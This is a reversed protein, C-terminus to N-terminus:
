IRYYICMLDLLILHVSCTACMYSILIACLIKTLFGSLFLGSPLCLCRHSPLIFRLRMAVPYSLTSHIWTAWSLSWHCVRTFLTICRWTGYFALFKKVLQTVILKQIIVGHVKNAHLCLLLLYPRQFPFRPRRPQSTTLEFQFKQRTCVEFRASTKKLCRLCGGVTWPNVVTKCMESM